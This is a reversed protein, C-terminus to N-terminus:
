PGRSDPANRTASCDLHRSSTRRQRRAGWDTGSANLSRGSAAMKLSSRSYLRAASSRSTEGGGVEIISSAMVIYTMYTKVGDTYHLGDSYVGYSQLGYGCLGYSYLDQRRRGRHYQLVCNCRIVDEAPDHIVAAAPACVTSTHMCMHVSMTTSLCQSPERRPLENGM